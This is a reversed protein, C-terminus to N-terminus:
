RDEGQEWSIAELLDSFDEHYRRIPRGRGRKGEMKDELISKGKINTSEKDLNDHRRQEPDTTHRERTSINFTSWKNLYVYSSYM